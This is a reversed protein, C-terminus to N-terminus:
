GQGVENTSVDLYNVRDDGLDHLKTELRVLKQVLDDAAGFRVEAGDTFHLRLDSGDPTVAIEATRGLVTPTLSRALTAAAALGPPGYQGPEVSPFDGVRVPLYGVPQQASQELVRGRDDILRWQGDEGQFTAAATRERLEIAAGDPFRTTVRADEVWPLTELEREAADTDARLVPTGELDDIVAALAAADTHEGGSVEVQEIAFLGSGLVALAAVVLALLVVVVLTWKLRKRGAARKIAIRRERMRPEIRTATSADEVSITTAADERDEILVTSRSADTAELNGGIYVSDPVGDDVISITRPGGPAETDDAAATPGSLLPDGAVGVPEAEAVDDDVIVVTTPRPPPEAGVIPPSTADEDRRAGANAEGGDSPADPPAPDPEDAPADPAAPDPEDPVVAPPPDPEDADDVPTPALLEAVEPSSLDIRELGEQDSPDASFARLLEDLVEPSPTEDRPVGHRAGESRGSM